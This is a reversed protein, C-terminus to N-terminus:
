SCLAAWYGKLLGGVFEETGKVAKVLKVIAEVVGGGDIEYLDNETLTEFGNIM